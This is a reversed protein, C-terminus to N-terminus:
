VLMPMSVAAQPLFVVEFEGRMNAVTEDVSRQLTSSHRMQMKEAEMRDLGESYLIVRARERILAIQYAVIATVLNRGPNRDISDLIEKANRKRLFYRLDDTGWGHHCPSSMIVTCGDKVVSGSNEIAKTAYYFDDDYPYASVLVLDAKTPVKVTYIQRCLDAGERHASIPDGAFARVIEGKNNMVTNVLFDLPLMRAAQDIEQRIPNGDLQGLALGVQRVQIHNRLITARGAVGPLISKGGASFGAYPHPVIDGTALKVDAEAMTRNIWIKNGLNSKGILKLERRPDHQVVKVRGFVTAGVKRRREQRTMPRHLAAGIIVTVNSDRIGAKRLERLMAPILLHDPTARSFDSISIAATRKGKAIESLRASGIPNGLARQIERHADDSGKVNPLACTHVAANDPLRTLLHKKGYPVSIETM